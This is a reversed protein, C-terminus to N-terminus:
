SERRRAGRKPSDEGDSTADDAAQAALHEASGIEVLKWGHLTEPDDIRVLGAPVAHAQSLDQEM